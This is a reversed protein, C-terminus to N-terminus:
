NFNRLCALRKCGAHSMLSMWYIHGASTTGNIAFLVRRLHCNRFGVSQSPAQTTVSIDAVTERAAHCQKWAVAAARDPRGRPVKRSTWTRLDDWVDRGIYVADAKPRAFPCRASRRGLQRTARFTMQQPVALDPIPPLASIAPPRDDRRKAATRHKAPKLPL